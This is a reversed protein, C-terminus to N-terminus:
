LTGEWYPETNALNMRWRYTGDPHPVLLSPVSVRASDPNKVMGSSVSWLIAEDLSAFQKPRKQLIAHMYPLASMATGEVVDIVVLGQIKCKLRPLTDVTGQPPSSLSSSPRLCHSSNSSSVSLTDTATDSSQKTSTSESTNMRHALRVAVAGGMSHGVVVIQTKEDPFLTNIVHVADNVLTDISFDDENEVVQTGGHGRCDFAVIQCKDKLESAVLAWSLSSHGAGHIFVCIPGSNGARYVQFGGAIVEKSDFYRDWGHPEYASPNHVKPGIQHTELLKAGREKLLQKRLDTEASLPLKFSLAASM